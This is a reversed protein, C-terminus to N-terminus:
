LEVPFVRHLKKSPRIARRSPVCRISPRSRDGRSSCASLVGGALLAELGDMGRKEIRGMRWGEDEVRGPLLSGSVALLQAQLEDAPATRDRDDDNPILNIPYRRIRFQRCRM